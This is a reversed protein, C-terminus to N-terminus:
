GPVDEMAKIVEDLIGSLEWVRDEPDLGTALETMMMLADAAGAWSSVRRGCFERNWPRDFIVPVTEGLDDLSRYVSPDDDVLVDVDVTVKDRVMRVSTTVLGSGAVWTLTDRIVHPVAPRSTVLHVEAVQAVRRVGEAAGEAIECSAYIGAEAAADLLEEFEDHSMGWAEGLHYTAPDPYDEPEGGRVELVWRRFTDVFEAVVGDLDFAISVLTDNM